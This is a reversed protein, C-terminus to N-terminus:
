ETELPGTTTGSSAGGTSASSGPSSTEPQPTGPREEGDGGEEHSPMARAQCDFFHLVAEEVVKPPQRLLVKAVSPKWFMWWPPGFVKACYRRLFWEFAYDDLEGAAAKRLEDQFQQFEMYSLIRGRYVKGELKVEPAELSERLEDADFM